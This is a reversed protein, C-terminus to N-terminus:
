KRVLIGVTQDDDRVISVDTEGPKVRVVVNGGTPFRAVYEEASGSLICPERHLGTFPEGGYNYVYTVEAVACRYTADCSSSTVAAM